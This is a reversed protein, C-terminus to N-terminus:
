PAKALIGDLLRRLKRVDDFGDPTKLADELIMVVEQSLSRHAAHARALLKAKLDVPLQLGISTPADPDRPLTPPRGIRKSGSM